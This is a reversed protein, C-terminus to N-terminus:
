EPTEEVTKPIETEIVNTAGANELAQKVNEKSEKDVLAIMNGGGGAGSLKAGLAGSERATNVLKELKPHSVGIEKLLEHNENFLEGIEELKGEQMANRLENTLEGAKEFLPDYKEPNREKRQRVGEVLEKTNGKEGTDAILLMMKKGVEITEPGKDRIFYVPKRYSVVTNDIGSPNGHFHKETEYAIESIEEDSLNKKHHKSVARATSAALAASSGMGSSVPIDSSIELGKEFKKGTKKETNKITQKIATKSNKEEESSIENSFEIEKENKIEAKTKVGNVPAAIAPEGHVVFHEGSLIVKGPAEGETKEPM